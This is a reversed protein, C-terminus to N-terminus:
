GSSLTDPNAPATRADATSAEWSALLRLAEHTPTGPPASYATITLGPDAPLPMAEFGLGLRGVTPHHVTQAVPRHGIAARDLGQQTGSRGVRCPFRCLSTPHSPRASSRARRSSRALLSRSSFAVIAPLDRGAM